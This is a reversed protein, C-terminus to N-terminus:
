IHELMNKVNQGKGSLCSCLEQSFPEESLISPTSWRKESNRTRSRTDAKAPYSVKLDTLKNSLRGDQIRRLSKM